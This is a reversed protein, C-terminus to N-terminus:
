TTTSPILIKFDSFTQCIHQHIAKTLHARLITYIQFCTQIGTCIVRRQKKVAFVPSNHPSSYDEQIAGLHFLEDVQQYIFTLHAAPIPFQKVCSAPEETKPRLVRSVAATRSWTSSLTSCPASKKTRKVPPNAQRYSQRDSELKKWEPLFHREAPSLRSPRTRSTDSITRAAISDRQRFHTGLLAKSSDNVLCIDAEEKHQSEYLAEAVDKPKNHTFIAPETAM